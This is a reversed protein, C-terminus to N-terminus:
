IGSPRDSDAPRGIVEARVVQRMTETLYNSLTDKAFPMALRSGLPKGRHLSVPYGMRERWLAQRLRAARQFANDGRVLAHHATLIDTSIDVIV